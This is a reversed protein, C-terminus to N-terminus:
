TQPKFGLRQLLGTAAAPAKEKAGNIFFVLVEKPMFQWVIPGLQDGLESLGIGVRIAPLPSGSTKM